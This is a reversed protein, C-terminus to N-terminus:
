NILCRKTLKRREFNKGFSYGILGMVLASVWYLFTKEESNKIERIEGDIFIVRKAKEDIEISWKEEKSIKELENYNIPFREKDFLRNYKEGVWNKIKEKERELPECKVYDSLSLGGMAILGGFVAGVFFGVLGSDYKM